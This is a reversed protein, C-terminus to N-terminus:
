SRRRAAIVGAVMMALAISILTFPVQMVLAEPVLEAPCVRVGTLQPFAILCAECAMMSAACLVAILLYRSAAILCLALPCLLTLLLWLVLGGSGAFLLAVGAGLGVPMALTTALPTRWRNGTQTPAYDLKM